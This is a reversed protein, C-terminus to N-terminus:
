GKRKVLIKLVSGLWEKGRFRGFVLDELDDTSALTMNGSHERSELVNTRELYKAVVSVLRVVEHYFFRTYYCHGARM